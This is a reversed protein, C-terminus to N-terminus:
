IVINLRKKLKEIANKNSLTVQLGPHLPEPLDNIPSWRYESSEWNLVPKFKKADAIFTHYEFKSYLDNLHLLEATKPSFGTEELCERLASQIPTEGDDVSGGPVSWTGPYTVDLSRRVLLLEGFDNILLIGAGQEKKIIDSARM